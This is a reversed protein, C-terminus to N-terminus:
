KNMNPFKGSFALLYVFRIYIIMMEDRDGDMSFCGLNYTDCKGAVTLTRSNRHLLSVM